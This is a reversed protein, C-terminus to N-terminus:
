LHFKLLFVYCIIIFHHFQNLQQLFTDLNWPVWFWSVFRVRYKFLWLMFAIAKWTLCRNTKFAFRNCWEGSHYGKETRSFNTIGGVNAGKNVGQNSWVKEQLQFFNNSSVSLTLEFVCRLIINAIYTLTEGVSRVTLKTETPFSLWLFWAEQRLNVNSNQSGQLKEM